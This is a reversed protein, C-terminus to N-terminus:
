NFEPFDYAREGKFIPEPSSKDSVDFVFEFETMYCSGYDNELKNYVEVIYMLPEATELNVVQTYYYDYEYDVYDYDEESEIGLEEDCEGDYRDWWDAMYDEVGYDWEIEDMKESMWSQEEAEVEMATSAQDGDIAKIFSFVGDYETNLWSLVNKTESVKVYPNDNAEAVYSVTTALLILLKLFM